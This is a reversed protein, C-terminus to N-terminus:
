ELVQPHIEKWGQREKLLYKEGYKVLTHNSKPYNIIAKIEQSLSVLKRRCHEQSILLCEMETKPATYGTDRSIYSDGAKKLMWWGLYEEPSHLKNAILDVLDKIRENILALIRDIGEPPKIETPIIIEYKDRNRYFLIGQHLIWEYTIKKETCYKNVVFLYNSWNRLEKFVTETLTM